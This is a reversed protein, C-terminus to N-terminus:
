NEQITTEDYRFVQLENGVQKISIVLRDDIEICVEHGDPVNIENTAEGDDDDCIVVKM